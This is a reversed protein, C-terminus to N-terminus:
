FESGIVVIFLQDFVDFSYQADAHNEQRQGDKPGEVILLDAVYEIM